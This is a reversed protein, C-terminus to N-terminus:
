YIDYIFEDCFIDNKKDNDDCNYTVIQWNCTLSQHKYM